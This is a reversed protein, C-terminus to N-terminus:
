SGFLGRKNQKIGSNSATVGTGHCHWEMARRSDLCLYAPDPPPERKLSASLGGIAQSASLDGGKNDQPLMGLLMEPLNLFVKNVIPIAATLLLM